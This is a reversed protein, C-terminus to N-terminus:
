LDEAEKKKEREHAEKLLLALSLMSYFHKEELALAQRYCKEAERKEGLQMHATGLNYLADAYGPNYYLAREFSTKADTTRNLKLLIDGKNLHAEIFDPKMSLARQYLDYAEQLRLPDMKILNALNYYVNIHSPAVRFSKGRPMLNIAEQYAQTHAHKHTHTCTNYLNAYMVSAPWTYVLVFLEFAPICCVSQPGYNIM